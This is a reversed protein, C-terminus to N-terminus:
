DPLQQEKASQAGGEFMNGDGKKGKTAKKVKDATNATAGKNAPPLDEPEREEDPRDDKKTATEKKDEPNANDQPDNPVEKMDSIQIPAPTHGDTEEPDLAVAKDITGMAEASMPLFKCLKIVCTKMAMADFHQWWPGGEGKFMAFKSRHLEAELRSMVQFVEGTKTQVTAYYHTSKRAEMEKLTTPDNRIHRIFPKSGLEYTFEDCDYVTHAQMIGVEGSRNVLQVYGKYGVILQVSGKFPVLYCQGLVGGIKLGLSGANICATFLSMPTADLLKPNKACETYMARLITDAQGKMFKPLSTEVESMMRKGMAKVVQLPQRRNYDENTYTQIATSM